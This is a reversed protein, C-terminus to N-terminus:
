EEDPEDFCHEAINCLQFFPARRIAPSDPLAFWFDNAMNVLKSDSYEGAEVGGATMGARTLVSNYLQVYYQQEFIAKQVEATDQQLQGM